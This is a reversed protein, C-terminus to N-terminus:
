NSEAPTWQFGHSHLTSPIQLLTASHCLDRSVVIRGAHEEGFHKMGLDLIKTQLKGADAYKGQMWYTYALNWMADMTEPHEEGLLRNRLDLVKIKLNQADAYKGLSHYTSALDGMALIM